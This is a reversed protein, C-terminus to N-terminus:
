DSEALDQQWFSRFVALQALLGLNAGGLAVLSIASTPGYLRALLACVLLGLLATSGPLYSALQERLPPGDADERLIAARFTEFTTAMALAFIAAMGLFWVALREPAMLGIVVFEAIGLVFPILLDRFRPAWTFRLVMSAYMAWVVIVGLLIAAVQLVGAAYAGAERWRGLGGVGQEWVLEFALAQIIGLVALLVQPFM